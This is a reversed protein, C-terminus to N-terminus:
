KYVKKLIPINIVLCAFFLAALIRAWMMADAGMEFPFRCKFSWLIGSHTEFTHMCLIPLSYMGCWKLFIPSKHLWSYKNNFACLADCLKYIIYTGGCAGFIDLPFSYQCEYLEIGDHYITFPWCIVCIAIIYWPITHKHVLWGIAYFILATIGPLIGFPLPQAHPYIFKAALSLILCTGVVIVERYKSSLKNALVQISYFIERTWFLAILFWTPGATVLGSTYEWADGSAWFLTIVYRMVLSWDHKLVSQIFGWLILLIFTVAYPLLLRRANKKTTVWFGDFSYVDKAFYGGLLFFLPMHFSYIFAHEYPLLHLNCHEWVMLLVAIGKMIDFAPNRQQM